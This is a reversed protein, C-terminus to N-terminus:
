WGDETTTELKNNLSDELSKVMLECNSKMNLLGYTYMKAALGKKNFYDKFRYKRAQTSPTRYGGSYSAAWFANGDDYQRIRVKGDKVQIVMRIYWNKPTVMGLTKINYKTIYNFVLQTNTESVLVEEMNVFSIGGWNKIKTILEDSGVDIASGEIEIIQEDILLEEKDVYFSDVHVKEKQAFSGLTTLVTFVALMILKVKKM